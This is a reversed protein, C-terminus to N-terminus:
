QVSLWDGYSEACPECEPDCDDATGPPLGDSHDCTCEGPYKEPDPRWPKPVEAEGGSHLLCGVAIWWDKGSPSGKTVAEDSGPKPDPPTTM